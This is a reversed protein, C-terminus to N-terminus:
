DWIPSSPSPVRVWAGSGHLRACARTVGGVLHVDGAESSRRGPQVGLQEAFHGAGILVAEEVRAPPGLRCSTPEAAERHTLRQPPGGLLM